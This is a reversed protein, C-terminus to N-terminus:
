NQYGAVAARRKCTGGGSGGYCRWGRYRKLKVYGDAGTGGNVVVKRRDPGLWYERMIRRAQVCRLRDNAYVYIRLSAEFSGCKKMGPWDYGPTAPASGALACWTAM